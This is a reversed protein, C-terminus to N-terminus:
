RLHGLVLDDIIHGRHFEQHYKQLSVVALNDVM